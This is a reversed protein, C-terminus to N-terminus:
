KQYQIVIIMEGPDMKLGRLKMMEGPKMLVRTTLANVPKDDKEKPAIEIRLELRGRGDPEKSVPTVCLTYKGDLPTRSQKGLPAAQKATKVKRYTDFALDEVAKKIPELGPDFHKEARHETTAQAAWISLSVTNDATGSSLALLLAIWTM